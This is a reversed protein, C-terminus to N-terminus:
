PNWDGQALVDVVLSAKIRGMMSDKGSHATISFTRKDGPDFNYYSTNTGKTKNEVRIQVTKGGSYKHHWYVKNDARSKTATETTGSSGKPVYVSYSMNWYPVVDGSKTESALSFGAGGIL